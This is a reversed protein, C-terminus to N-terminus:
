NKLDICDTSKQFDKIECFPPLGPKIIPDGKTEKEACYQNIQYLLELPDDSKMENPLGFTYAKLVQEDLKEHAQKLENNGPLEYIRYLERQTLRNELIIEMKVNRLNIAAKVVDM